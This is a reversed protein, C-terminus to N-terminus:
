LNSILAYVIIFVFIGQVINRITFLNSLDRFVNKFDISPLSGTQELSNKIILQKLYHNSKDEDVKIKVNNPNGEFFIIESGKLAGNQRVHNLGDSPILYLGNNHQYTETSDKIKKRTVTKNKNIFILNM